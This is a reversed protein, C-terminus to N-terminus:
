LQAYICGVCSLLMHTGITSAEPESCMGHM